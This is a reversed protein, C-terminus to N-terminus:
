GVSLGINGGQGMLMYIGGGLSQTRIQVADFNQATLPATLGLTSHAVVAAMVSAIVAAFRPM